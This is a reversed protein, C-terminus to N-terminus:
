SASYGGTVWQIVQDKEKLQKEKSDKMQQFNKFRHIAFDIAECLADPNSCIISKRVYDEVGNDVLNLALEHDNVSTLVLVPMGKRRAKELRMFSETRDKTDPLELDLLVVDWEDSERLMQEAEQMSRARHLSFVHKAYRGLAREVTYADTDSDEVHLVKIKRVVDETM